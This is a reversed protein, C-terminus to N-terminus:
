IAASIATAIGITAIITTLIASVTLITDTLTSSSSAVM